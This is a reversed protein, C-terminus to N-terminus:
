PNLLTKEWPDTDAARTFLLRQHLRSPEEAWFEIYDPVVRYGAWHSPRPVPDVNEFQKTYKEVRAVLDDRHNLPASQESAWAGICSERSRSHFYTDSLEDEVNEIRGEIRIQRQFTKWYFCLAAHPHSEIDRGKRSLHNTFFVFGRHDHHKLLVMRASPRETAAVTALCMANPNNPESKIADNLWDNFIVFPDPNEFPLM